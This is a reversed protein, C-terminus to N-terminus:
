DNDPQQAAAKTAARQWGNCIAIAKECTQEDFRAIHCDKPDIGLEAALKRYAANRVKYKSSRGQELIARRWHPDFAAHTRKRADRLEERALTGLPKHTKSDKHTGVWAQCPQCIWIMGYSKRYVAISDILEANLGCYPCVVVLQDSV